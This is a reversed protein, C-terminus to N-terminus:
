GAGGPAVPDAPSTSDPRLRAQESPALAAFEVPTLYVRETDSALAFPDKAILWGFVLAIFGTSLIFSPQTVRGWPGPSSPSAALTFSTLYAAVGATGAVWRLAASKKFPAAGLTWYLGGALAGGVATFALIYLVQRLVPPRAAPPSPALFMARGTVWILM